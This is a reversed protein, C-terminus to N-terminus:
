QDLTERRRPLATRRARNRTPGVVPDVTTPPQFTSQSLNPPTSARRRGSPFPTSISTTLTGPQNNNDQEPMILALSHDDCNKRIGVLIFGNHPNTNTIFNGILSITLPHDQYAAELSNRASDNLENEELSLKTLSRNIKIADSLHRVGENTIQNGNISLEKIVNNTKLLEALEKAGELKIQNRCLHLATLSSHSELSSRLYKVGSCGLPNGCLKLIRLNINPLRESIAKAINNKFGNYAVGALILTLLLGISLAIQRIKARDNQKQQEFKTTQQKKAFDYNM